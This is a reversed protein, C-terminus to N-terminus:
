LEALTLTQGMVIHNLLLERLAQADGLFGQAGGPLTAFAQDSPAFITFPGAAQLQDILGANTLITVLIQLGSAQLGPLLTAEPM